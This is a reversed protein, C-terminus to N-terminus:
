TFKLTLERIRSVHVSVGFTRESVDWTMVVVQDEFSLTTPAKLDLASDGRALVVELPFPGGINGPLFGSATQRIPETFAITIHM